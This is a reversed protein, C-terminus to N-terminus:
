KDKEMDKSELLEWFHKNVMDTYERPMSKQNLIFKNLKNNIKNIKTKYVLNNFRIKFLKWIRFGKTHSFCYKSDLALCRRNTCGYKDCYEWMDIDLTWKM